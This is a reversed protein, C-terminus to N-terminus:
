YGIWRRPACDYFREFYAEAREQGLLEIAFRGAADPVTWGPIPPSEQAARQSAAILAAVLEAAAGPPLLYRAVDRDPRKNLRGELDLMLAVEGSPSLKIARAGLADLLIAEGEGLNVREARM